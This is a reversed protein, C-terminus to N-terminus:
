PANTIITTLKQRTGFQPTILLSHWGIEGLGCAVAVHKHSIDGPGGPYEESPKLFHPMNAPFPYARFGRQELFKAGHYAFEDLQPNIRALTFLQYSHYSAPASRERVSCAILDCSAENIHLAISVLTRAEPLYRRPRMIEPAGDLLTAPGFGVLDAGRALLFSRLKETLGPGADVASETGSTESEGGPAAGPSNKQADVAMGSGGHLDDGDDTVRPEASLLGSRANPAGEWM